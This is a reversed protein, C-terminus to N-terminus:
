VNVYWVIYDGAPWKRRIATCKVLGGRNVLYSNGISNGDSNYFLGLSTNNITSGYNIPAGMYGYVLRVANCYWTSSYIPDVYITFTAGSMDLTNPLAFYSIRNLNQSNVIHQVIINGSGFWDVDLIFHPDIEGERTMQVGGTEKFENKCIAKFTISSRHWKMLDNGNVINKIFGEGLGLKFLLSEITVKKNMRTINDGTFYDEEVKTVNSYISDEDVYWGGINGGRLEVNDGLFKGRLLDLMLNPTFPCDSQGIKTPDFKKYDATDNGSADKGHQSFMYDGFFVASALKAWNAMLIETFIAKYSEFPIWTANSGNQAYDEAPNLGTVSGSKNMVYYMKGSEYYVIPTISDTATYTVSLDFAGSPFPMRGREGAPGPLGNEGNKGDDVVMVTKTDVVSGGVYQKFVIAAMESTVIIRSAYLFEISSSGTKYTLTFKITGIGTVPNEDGTKAMAECSVYEPTHTGDAKRKVQTVSPVLWYTTADAGSEPAVSLRLYTSSLKKM